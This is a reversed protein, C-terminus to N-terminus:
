SRQHPTATGQYANLYAQRHQQGPTCYHGQPARCASCGMVHDIFLEHAANWRERWEDVNLVSQRRKTNASKLLRDLHWQPDVIPNHDKEMLKFYDALLERSYHGEEIAQMDDDSLLRRLMHADARLEKAIKDLLVNPAQDTKSTVEQPNQPNASLSPFDKNTLPNPKKTTQPRNRTKASKRNDATKRLDDAPQTGLTQPTEASDASDAPAHLRTQKRRRVATMLDFM